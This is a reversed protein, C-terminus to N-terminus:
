ELINKPPNLINIGPIMDSKDNKICFLTISIFIAMSMNLFTPAIFGGLPAPIIAVFMFVCLFITLPNLYMIWKPYLTQKKYVAIALFVSGTVLEVIMIILIFRWFFEFKEILIKADHSNPLNTNLNKWGFAMFAYSMHFAVSMFVAHIFPILNGAVLIKNSKKICYFVGILGLIQFPLAFVGLLTGIAIRWNSILSMVETPKSIFEFGSVSTGLLLVDSIGTIIAAILGFFGLRLAIRKDVLSNLSISKNVLSIHDM